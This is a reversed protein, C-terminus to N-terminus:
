KLKYILTKSSETAVFQSSNLITGTYKFFIKALITYRGSVIDIGLDNFDLAFASYSNQASVDMDRESLERHFLVTDSGLVPAKKVLLSIGIHEPAAIPGTKFNLIKNSYTISNLNLANVIPTAEILETMYYADIYKMTGQINSSVQQKKLMIFYKKTGSASLILKDGELTVKFTERANTVPLNEVSLNVNAEVDFDKVEYPIRVTEICPYAVTRYVPVRECSQGQPTQRCVTRYYVDQRYCTTRRQEYRYETHTEEARLLLQVSDQTGDYFFTKTERTSSFVNLSLLVFILSLLIRM